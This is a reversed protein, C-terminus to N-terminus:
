WYKYGYVVGKTQFAELLRIELVFEIQIENQNTIFQISLQELLAM